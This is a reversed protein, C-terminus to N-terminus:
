PQGAPGPPPPAEEHAPRRALAEADVWGGAEDAEEAEEPWPENIEASIPAEGRGAGGGGAAGAAGAEGAAEAAEAAAESAAAEATAEESPAPDPPGQPPGGEGAPAAPAHPAPQFQKQLFNMIAQVMQMEQAHGPGGGQGAAVLGQVAAAAAAAEAGEGGGRGAPAPGAEGPLEKGAQPAPVTIQSVRGDPGQVVIQVSGKANAAAANLAAAAVHQFVREDRGRREQAAVLADVEAAVVQRGRAGGADSSAAFAAAAPRARPACSPTPSSARRWSGTWGRRRGEEEEDGPGWGGDELDVEVEEWEGGGGEFFDGSSSSSSSRGGGNSADSGIGVGGGGSSGGGSSGDDSSGRGSSGGGSGAVAPPESHLAPPADSRSYLPREHPPLAPCQRAFDVEVPQRRLGSVRAARRRRRGAGGAGAVAPRGTLPDVAPATENHPGAAPASAPLAGDEFHAPPGPQPQTEWATWTYPITANYDLPVLHGETTFVVGRKGLTGPEPDFLLYLYKCTESLFFSAQADALAGTEVDDVEAHGCPTRTFHQLSRVMDRGVYLYRGRGTAAHLYFASEALEPRLPYRKQGAQAQQSHLNWGEPIGIYKRWVWHFAYHTEAAASVDGYLAQLGPWFAQLSNFIPWVIQGSYMNADVYWADKKLHRLVAAYAEGFMWLYERDEFLLYGKYLYEYFSDAGAGIGAEKQTWEGSLADIHMGFLGLPSRRRFLGRLAGRAAAEFRPDGTLRSLLGFELAFTGAGALSAVPTEGPPVGYRLNVTGYPILTPTQFAWLLRHGLDRALELLGGGYGPVYRIALLHSSLLGGLIRINTEFVSVNADIDFDHFRSLVVGVARGFETANGLVMLTDLADILTLAYGGFNNIGSCSVPALEDAPFAYKLYGEYGHYFMRRVEERLRIRERISMAETVEVVVAGFVLFLLVVAAAPPPRAM